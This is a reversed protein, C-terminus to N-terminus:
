RRRKPKVVARKAQAAPQARARKSKGIHVPHEDLPYRTGILVTIGGASVATDECEWITLEYDYTPKWAWTVTLPVKRELNRVLLGTLAAQMGPPLSAAFRQEFRTHAVRAIFEAVPAPKTGFKQKYLRIKDATTLKNLRELMVQFSPV